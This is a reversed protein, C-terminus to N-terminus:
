RRRPWHQARYPPPPAPLSQNHKTTRNVCVLDSSGRYAFKNTFPPKWVRVGVSRTRSPSPPHPPRPGQNWLRPKSTELSFFCFWTLPTSFVQSWNVLWSEARCIIWSSNYKTPLFVLVSLFSVAIPTPPTPRWSHTSKLWIPPAIHHLRPWKNLKGM